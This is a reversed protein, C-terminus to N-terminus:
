YIDCGQHYATVIIKTSGDEMQRLEVPNEVNVKIRHIKGKLNDIFLSKNEFTVREPQTMLMSKVLNYAAGIDTEPLELVVKFDHPTDRRKLTIGHELHQIVQDLTENQITDPTKVEAYHYEAWALIPYTLDLDSQTMEFKYNPIPLESIFGEFLYGEEGEHIVKVWKGSLWEITASNESEELIIVKDGYPIVKLVQGDSKPQARLKLGSFAYVYKTSTAPETNITTAMMPEAFITLLLFAILNKM